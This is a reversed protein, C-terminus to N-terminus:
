PKPPKPPQPPPTGTEGGTDGGDGGDDGDDDFTTVQGTNPDCNFHNHTPNTLAWILALIYKLMTQNKFLTSFLLRNRPM